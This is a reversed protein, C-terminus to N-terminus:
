SSFSSRWRSSLCGSMREGRGDSSLEGSKASHHVSVVISNQSLAPNYSSWGDTVITRGKVVTREVFGCLTEATTDEIVQVRASGSAQWTKEGHGCDIREVAAVIWASHAPLRRGVRGEAKGRGFVKTEDVEISAADLLYSGEDEDLARRLKHLLTWASGYSALGTERQLQKASISTKRISFQWMAYLWTTLPMRTRHLVTGATVSTQRGCNKCEWLPRSRLRVSDRGDCRPCVFGDPWRWLSLYEICSAEDPFMASFERFSSPSPPLRSLTSM